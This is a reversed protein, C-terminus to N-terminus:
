AQRLAVRLRREAADRLTRAARLGLGLRAAAEALGLGEVHVAELLARARPDLRALALAVAERDVPECREGALEPLAAGSARPAHCRRAIGWAWAAFPRAADYWDRRRWANLAAEQVVDDRDSANAIRGSLARRLAPEAERWRSAFAEQGGIAIM